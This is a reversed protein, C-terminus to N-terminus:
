TGVPLEIVFCTNPHKTDLYLRGSHDEIIGVSISLGLGTGKGTEKTTFFPELVKKAVDEPIGKGCDIIRIVIKGSNTKDEEVQLKVWKNEVEIEAVADFANNLLNLFVQSIQSERCLIKVKGLNTTQLAIEGHKFREVCMELTESLIKELDVSAMPDNNGNRAFSRLGAVIKAVRMVGTIAKEVATSIESYKELDTNVTKQIKDLYGRTIMLPNNIEHAVGAAMEGLSSMKSINIMKLQQANIISASHQQEEGM